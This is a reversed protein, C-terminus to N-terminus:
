PLFVTNLWRCGQLKGKTLTEQCSVIRRPKPPAVTSIDNESARNHVMKLLISRRLSRYPPSTARDIITRIATSAPAGASDCIGRFGGIPRL